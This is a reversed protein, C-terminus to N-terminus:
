RIGAYWRVIPVLYIFLFAIVLVVALAREGLKVLFPQEPPTTARGRAPSTAVKAKWEGHGLSAALSGFPSAGQPVIAVRATLDRIAPAERIVDQMKVAGADLEALQRRIAAGQVGPLLAGHRILKVVERLQPDTLSEEDPITTKLWPKLDQLWAMLVVNGKSRECLTNWADARDKLPLSFFRTAFDRIENARQWRRAEPLVWDLEPPLEVPPSMLVIAAATWTDEDREEDEEITELIARPLGEDAVAADIGIRSRAWERVVELEHTEM